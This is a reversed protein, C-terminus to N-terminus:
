TPTGLCYVRGFYNWINKLLEINGMTNFQLDNSVAIESLNGIATTSSGFGTLSIIFILLMDVSFIAQLITHDEGRRPKNVINSTSLCSAGKALGIKQMLIDQQSQGADPLVVAGETTSGTNIAVPHNDPQQKLSLIFREEQIAILLPLALLFLIVVRSGVYGIRPFTFFRETNCDHSVCKRNSSAQDFCASQTLTTLSPHDRPEPLSAGSTTKSFILDVQYFSREHLRSCYPFIGLSICFVLACSPTSSSLGHEGCITSSRFLNVARRSERKAFSSSKQRWREGAM